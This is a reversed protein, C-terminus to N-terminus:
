SNFRKTIHRSSLSDRPCIVLSCSPDLFVYDTPLFGPCLVNSIITTFRMRFDCNVEVLIELDPDASHACAILCTFKHLFNEATM